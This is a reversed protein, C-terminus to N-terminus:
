RPIFRDQAEAAEAHEALETAGIQCFAVLAGAILEVDHGIWRNKRPGGRKFMTEYRYGFLDKLIRDAVAKPSGDTQTAIIATWRAIWKADDAWSAVARHANKDHDDM